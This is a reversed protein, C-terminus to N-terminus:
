IDWKGVVGGPMNKLHEARILGKNPMKLSPM